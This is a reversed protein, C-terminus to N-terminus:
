FLNKSLDFKINFVRSASEPKSANYRKVVEETIDIAKDFYAVGTTSLDLVLSFGREKAITEIIPLVEEKIRNFLKFELRQYDKLSDEEVRKRQTRLRDLDMALKQQTEQTLTLSQTRLRNEIDQVDEDIRALESRIKQQEAQLQAMAKKGEASGEFAKIPDIVAINMTQEASGKVSIVALIFIVILIIKTSKGKM